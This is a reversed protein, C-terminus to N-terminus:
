TAEVGCDFSGKRAAVVENHEGIEIRWGGFTHSSEHSIPQTNAVL